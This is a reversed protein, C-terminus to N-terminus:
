LHGSQGLGDRGLRPISKGFRLAKSEDIDGAMICGAQAGKERLIRTLKRTDIDAIAVVNNATLYESLTQTSRFNSQL